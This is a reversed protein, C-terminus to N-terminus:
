KTTAGKAVPASPYGARRTAETLAALTAKRDDYTVTATHKASSVSVKEVGPVGALSHGVIYPCSACYMNEVALTVTREAALAAAPLLAAGLALAAVIRNM